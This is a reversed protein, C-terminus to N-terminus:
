SSRATWRSWIWVCPRSKGSRCPAWSTTAGYLLTYGDAPARAAIASGVNGDAGALNEFIIPQAQAAPLATCFVIGGVAFWKAVAAIAFFSTKSLMQRASTPM